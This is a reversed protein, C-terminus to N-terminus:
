RLDPEAGTRAVLRRRVPFWPADFRKSWLGWLGTRAFLAMGLLLLRPGSAVARALELRKRDLM